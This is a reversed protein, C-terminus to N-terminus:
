MIGADHPNDWNVWYGAKPMPVFDDGLCESNAPCAESLGTKPNLYFDTAALDATPLTRIQNLFHKYMQKNTTRKTNTFNM